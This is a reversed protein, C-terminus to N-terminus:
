AGALVWEPRESAMAITGIPMRESVGLAAALKSNNTLDPNLLCGYLLELKERLQPHKPSTNM